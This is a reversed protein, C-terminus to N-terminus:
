ESQQPNLPIYAKECCQYLKIAYGHVLLQALEPFEIIIHEPLIWEKIFQELHPTQLSGATQTKQRILQTERQTPIKTKSVHVRCVTSGTLATNLCQTGKQTNSQCRM